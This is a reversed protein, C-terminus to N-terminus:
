RIQWIKRIEFPPFLSSSSLHSPPRHLLVIRRQRAGDSLSLRHSVSGITFRAAWSHRHKKKKKQIRWFVVLTIVPCQARTLSPSLHRTTTKFFLALWEARYFHWLKPSPQMQSKKGHSYVERIEYGGYHPVESASIVTEKASFETISSKRQWPNFPTLFYSQMSRRSGPATRTFM